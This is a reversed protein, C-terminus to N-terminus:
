SIDDQVRPITIGSVIRYACLGSKLTGPPTDRPRVTDAIGRAFGKRQTPVLFQEAPSIEEQGQIAAQFQVFAHRPLGQPLARQPLRPFPHELVQLAAFPQGRNIRGHHVGNKRQHRQAMRRVIREGRAFDVFKRSKLDFFAVRNAHRRANRRNPVGRNGHHREFFRSQRRIM